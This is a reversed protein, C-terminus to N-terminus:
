VPRPHDIFRTWSGSLLVHDASGNRGPPDAGFILPDSVGGWEPLGSMAKARAPRPWKKWNLRQPLLGALAPPLDPAWAACHFAGGVLDDPPARPVSVCCAAWEPRGQRSGTFM